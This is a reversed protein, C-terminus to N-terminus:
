GTYPVSISMTHAAWSGDEGGIRKTRSRRVPQYLRAPKGAIDVDLTTHPWDYIAQEIDLCLSETVDWPTIGKRVPRALATIVVLPEAGYGVGSYDVEPLRLGLFSQGPEVDIRGYAVRDHGSLMKIVHEVLKETSVM